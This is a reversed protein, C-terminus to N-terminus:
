SSVQIIEFCIFSCSYCVILYRKLMCFTKIVMLATLWFRRAWGTYLCVSRRTVTPWKWCNKSTRYFKCVLKSIEIFKLQTPVESGTIVDVKGVYDISSNAISLSFIEIFFIVYHAFNWLSKGAQCKVPPRRHRLRPRKPLSERCGDPRLPISTPMSKLNLTALHHSQQVLTSLSQNLQMLCKSPKRRFKLAILLIQDYDFM